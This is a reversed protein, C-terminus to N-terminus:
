AERSGTYALKENIGKFFTAFRELSKTLTSTKKYGARVLRSGDYIRKPAICSRGSLHLIGSLVQQPVPLPPVAYNAVGLQTMLEIEIDRYNNLPDDDDSVIFIERPKTQERRILFELAAVINEVCVLNMRRRGFLSSRLYNVIRSGQTLDHALKYLNQGGAGLVATPRLVVLHYTDKGVTAFTEEIGLKTREYDSAPSCITDENIRRSKAKGVVVATSCLIIRKLGVGAAVRGLKETASLHRNSNWDAPYALHVLIGGPALFERLIELNELDGHFWKVNPAKLLCSDGKSRTLVRLELEPFHSLANILHKGIFGTGGTISITTTFAKTEDLFSEDINNM